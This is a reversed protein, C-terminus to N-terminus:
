DFIAALAKMTAFDSATLDTTKTIKWDEGLATAVRQAYDEDLFIMGNDHGFIYNEGSADWGRFMTGIGGASSPKHVIYGFNRKASNMFDAM